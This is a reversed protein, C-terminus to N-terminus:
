PRSHPRAGNHSMANYSRGANLPSGRASRTRWWSGDEKPTTPGSLPPTPRGSRERESYLKSSSLVCRRRKTVKWSPRRNAEQLKAAKSRQVRAIASAASVALRLLRKHTDVPSQTFKNDAVIIGVVLNGAVLPVVVLPLTRDPKFSEIFTRPLNVSDEERVILAQKDSVVRSFVDSTEPELTWTLGLLEQDVGGKVFSGRDLHELYKGFNEMGSQHHHEWDRRAKLETLEGIGKTVTLVKQHEDLLLLVARNFGLGYGATVGTLVVHCIKELDPESQIYNDIQRLITGQELIRQEWSMLRSLQLAKTAQAAFSELIDLDTEAYQQRTAEYAVFLVADASGARKLPVGVVTKCSGFAPDRNQWTDYGHIVKGRGERAVIGALGPDVPVRTGVLEEGIAGAVKILRFEKLQPRSEWLGVAEGSVLTQLTSVIEQAVQAPAKETRMHLFIDDEAARRDEFYGVAGMRERKANRLQTASLRVRVRGGDRDKLSTDYGTLIGNLRLINGVTRPENPDAYLDYVSHGKAESEPYGLIQQAQDNLLTIHGQRDNAIIGLPSCTVLREWHDKQETLQDRQRSLQAVLEANEIAAVVTEAFIQLIWVDEETFAVSPPAYTDTSKKNESKLFGIRQENQANRKKLPVALLSLCKGSPLHSANHDRVAFHDWLAPGHENFVKGEYAIHSTLGMGRGSQIAFKRGKQFSGEAHGCSAVLTVFGPEKVLLVSSTEADLIDAAYKAILTLRDELPLNGLQGVIETTAVSLKAIRGQLAEFRKTEREIQLEFREGRSTDDNM